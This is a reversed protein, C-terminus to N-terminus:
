IKNRLMEEVITAKLLSMIEGVNTFRELANKCVTISVKTLASTAKAAVQVAGSL